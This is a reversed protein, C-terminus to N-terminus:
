PERVTITQDARVQTLTQKAGSPWHIVVSPIVALAGVGFHVTRSSASAYGVATTVRNTQKGITILAGIADRNSKTGELRLRLWHGATKAGMHLIPTDGLRTVVADVSGNHDFDAFAAGRHWAPGGMTLPEFTGDGNNHLLLNTQKSARSSFKETNTQVDGGAVFLDKWGDNDFDFAGCSWGSFAMTAKGIKSPYTRDEFLMKGTNRYFPFTENHLATVFLDDRGDNDIDRFDAGMSSLARGDDNFAVGATDGIEAFTGDGRNRFLFNPVTDNTVFADILGDADVDGFAVAMGKGVARGIGSAASVDVFRGGDNRFLLNSLGTYFQPHCYTRLGQTADGCFPETAPDWHVYRVVFLDLDGDKDYDFWGGGIAWDEIKPIAVPTFVGGGQNRYLVSERVGAVFLDTLGDNDFDGVAAGIDYGSGCLGSKTTVDEFKGAVNRYLRNCDEPKRKVLSPQPAGNTFFLDDWGDNDFDLVAVGGPMTEIQHKEPTEHHNLAHSFGAAVKLIQNAKVGILTRREGTPWRIELREVEEAQGLGFHVRMPNTAGFGESGKVERHQTVGNAVLTLSVGVPNGGPLDIELWKNRNGSQNEYFANRAHDGQYHGGLQAYIELDGDEDLDIFSVGHGKNGPRAFNTLATVDVFTGNGRNRFIRNPELRSLQPDGTGFYLDVFGDNDIDAVGAGMVGMPYFLGAAMTVDTFTGDGNNRFLRTADPHLAGPKYGSKLGEVVAEWPALSTTLIDPRADNNYDFFFCVFGNHPPQVVGTQKAVETFKWKGENRYLRNPTRDLGNVLFDLDGDGDYDGLAIGIAGYSPPEVIGAERTMNTFTGNRNNRYIQPTSGDRLVGNAIALDLYGDNDLDGWLSVFGSGPDGAGSKETVDEFRGDVNRLLRNAMPGSWGNLSLYLDVLGDNDYDILNLSYGSPTKALGVARTVETFKGGDNRYVAMFLGSGALFLDMDGDGDYDGWSCTGNGNLRDVGRAAAIDSFLLPPQGEPKTVGPFLSAAPLKPVAGALLQELATKLLWQDISVDGGMQTGQYFSSAADQFLGHRYLSAGRERLVERRQLPTKARVLAQEYFELSGAYDGKRALAKAMLFLAAGEEESYPTASTIVRDILPISRDIGLQPDHPVRHESHESFRVEGTMWESLNLLYENASPQLKVVRAALAFALNPDYHLLEARAHLVSKAKLAYVHDPNEKLAAALSEIALDISIRNKGADSSQAFDALHTRAMQFWAEPDRPHSLLHRNLEARAEATKGSRLLRASVTLPDVGQGWVVM